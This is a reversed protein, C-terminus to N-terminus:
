LPTSYPSYTHILVIQQSDSIHVMQFMVSIWYSLYALIIIMVMVIIIMIIIMVIIIIIIMITIM